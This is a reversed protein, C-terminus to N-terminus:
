QKSLRSIVDAFHLGLTDPLYKCTSSISNVSMRMYNESTISFARDFANVTSKISSHRIWFGNYYPQILVPLDGSMLCIVPVGRALSELAVNPFGEYRSLLVLYTAGNFISDLDLVEGHYRILNSSTITSLLKAKHAPNMREDIRGYIDLAVTPNDMAIFSELLLETNKERGLRGIFLLRNRSGLRLCESSTVYFPNSLSTDGFSINPLYYSEGSKVRCLAYYSKLSNSLVFDAIKYCLLLALKRPLSYAVTFDSREFPIYIISSACLKLLAGYFTATSGYCILADNASSGSLLSHLFLIKGAKTFSRVYIIREFFSTDTLQPNPLKCEFENNIVVLSVKLLSYRTLYEFVSRAQKEQGGVALTDVLIYIM